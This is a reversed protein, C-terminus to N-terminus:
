PCAGWDRYTVDKQVMSIVTMSNTDVVRGVDHHLGRMLACHACSCLARGHGCWRRQYTGCCYLCGAMPIARSLPPPSLEGALAGGGGAAADAAAAAANVVVACTAVLICVSKLMTARQYYVYLQARRFLGVLWQARGHPKHPPETHAVGRGIM